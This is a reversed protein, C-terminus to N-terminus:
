RGWYEPELQTKPAYLAIYLVSNVIIARTYDDRDHHAVSVVTTNQHTDCVNKRKVTKGYTSDHVSHGDCSGVAPYRVPFGHRLRPM